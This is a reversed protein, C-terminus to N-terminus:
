PMALPVSSPPHANRTIRFEEPRVEYGLYLVMTQEQREYVSVPPHQFPNRASAWEQFFDVIQPSSGPYIANWFSPGFRILSLTCLLLWVLIQWWPWTQSKEMLPAIRYPTTVM